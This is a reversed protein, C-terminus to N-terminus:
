PGTVYNYDNTQWSGNIMSFLRIYITSGDTPLGTVALSTGAGASQSLMDNNGMIWAVIGIFGCTPLAVSLIGLVLILVGRHPELAPVGPPPAQYPQQPPSIQSM